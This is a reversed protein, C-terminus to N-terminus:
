TLLARYGCPRFQLLTVMEEKKEGDHFGCSSVNRRWLFIQSKWTTMEDTHGDKSSPFWILFKWWIEFITEVVVFWIFGRNNLSASDLEKLLTRSWLSSRGWLTLLNGADNSAWLNTVAHVFPALHGWGSGSSHLRSLGWWMKLYMKIDEKRRHSPSGLKIKGESNCYCAAELSCNWVELWYSRPYVPRSMFSGVRRWKTDLHPTFPATGRRGM